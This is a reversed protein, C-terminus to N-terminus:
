IKSLIIPIKEGSLRWSVFNLFVYFFKSGLFGSTASLGGTQYAAAHHQKPNRRRTAAKLARVRGRV